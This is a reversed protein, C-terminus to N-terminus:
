ISIASEISTIKSVKSDRSGHAILLPAKMKDVFFIPSVEKIFTTDENPNCVTEYAMKLQAKWYSPISRVYFDLNSVGCYNIGCAFLDPNFIILFLIILGDKFKKNSFFGLLM